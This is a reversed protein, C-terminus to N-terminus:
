ESRLVGPDGQTLFSGWVNRVQKNVHHICTRFFKNCLRIGFWCDILFAAFVMGFISSQRPHPGCGLTLTFWLCVPHPRYWRLHDFSAQAVGCCRGRWSSAHIQFSKHLSCNWDVSKTSSAPPRIAFLLRYSARVLILILECCNEHCLLKQVTAYARM